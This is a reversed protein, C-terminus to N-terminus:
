ALRDCIQGSVWPGQVVRACSVTLAPYSFSFLIINPVSYRRKQLGILRDDSLLIGPSDHLNNVARPLARALAPLKSLLFISSCFCLFSLAFLLYDLFVRGIIDLSSSPLLLASLLSALFPFSFFTISFHLLPISAPM